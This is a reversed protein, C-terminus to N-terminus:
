QSASESDAALPSLQEEWGGGLAKFLSATANLRARMADVLALEADLLNRQADLVDIFGVFGEDYRLQAMRVTDQIAEVQRRVSEVREASTQYLTLADRVEQFATLVTMRYQTEAQDRLAEATDVRAAGRGFDLLPGMVSAGKTWTTAPATLMDAFEIATSGLLFSLNLQPFREAEAVGIQATAAMLSAEASRLDPRRKLLESPLVSPVQDPLNLDTLEGPGFQLEDMLERPSMGVLVALASRLQEVRQQAGPLQARTTALESEAQRLVLADTEGADYRAQELSLTEERSEITSELIAVERQAARLNTYTTVVDTITALEIADHAFVSEELSAEAAEQSRALRGWLDIEYGLQGSLQYLNQAEGTSPPITSRESPSQRTAEAQGDLTPLRNAEALGLRARAEQIQQARLRIDLNQDMARNVLLSLTPDDFRTWWDEWGEREAETLLSHEPLEQPLDIEPAEYDPGMACGALFAAALLSLAQHHLKKHM